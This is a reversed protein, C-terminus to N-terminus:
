DPITFTPSYGLAADCKQSLELVTATGKAGGDIRDRLIMMEFNNEYPGSAAEYVPSGDIVKKKRGAWDITVFNTKALVSAWAVM